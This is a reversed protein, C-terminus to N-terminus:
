ANGAKRYFYSSAQFPSFGPMTAGLAFFFRATSTQGSQKYQKRMIIIDCTPHLMRYCKTVDKLFEQNAEICFNRNNLEVFLVAPFMAVFFVLTSILDVTTFAYVPNNLMLRSTVLYLVLPILYLLHYLTAKLYYSWRKLHLVKKTHALVGDMSKGELNTLRLFSVYPLLARNLKVIYFVIFGLILAITTIISM